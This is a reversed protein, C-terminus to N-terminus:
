PRDPEETLLSDIRASFDAEPPFQEYGGGVDLAKAKLRDRTEEIRARMADYSLSSELEEPTPRLAEESALRATDLRSRLDASQTSSPFTVGGTRVGLEEFVSADVPQLELAPAPEEWVDPVTEVVEALDPPFVLRDVPPEEPSEIPSELSTTFPEELERRIRRRSEEIRARLEEASIVHPRDPEESSTAPPWVAAAGTEDGIEADAVEAWGQLVAPQTEVEPEAVPAWVAPPRAEAQAEAPEEAPEEAMAPQEPLAREEAAPTWEVTEEDHLGVSEGAQNAVPVTAAGPHDAQMHSVDIERSSRRQSIFFGLVAGLAGGLLFKLLGRM